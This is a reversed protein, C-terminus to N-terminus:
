VECANGKSGTKIPDGVGLGKLIEVFSDRNFFTVCKGAVVKRDFLFETDTVLAYDMSLSLDAILPDLVAAVMDHAIYPISPQLHFGVLTSLATLYSSTLINGVEKLASEKEDTLELHADNSGMLINSIMGAQDEPFTIVMDGEVDGLIKFFLMVVISDDEGFLGSLEEIAIPYSARPVDISVNKGIMQGLATSAHAAGINGVERLADLQIEDLELNKEM